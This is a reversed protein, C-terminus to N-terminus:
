KITNKIIYLEIYNMIPQKKKVYSVSWTKNWAAEAGSFPSGSDYLMMSTELFCGCTAFDDGYNSWWKWIVDDYMMWSWFLVHCSDEKFDLRGSSYWSYWVEYVEPNKITKRIFIMSGSKKWVKGDDNLSNWTKKGANRRWSNTVLVWPAVSRSSSGSPTAIIWRHSANLKADLM